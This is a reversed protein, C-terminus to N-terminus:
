ELLKAGGPHEHEDCYRHEDHHRRDTQHPWPRAIQSQFLNRMLVSFQDKCESFSVQFLGEVRTISGHSNVTTSQNAARPSECADM